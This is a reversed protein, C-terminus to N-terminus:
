LLRMKPPAAVNAARRRVTQARKKVYKKVRKKRAKERGRKNRGGPAGAIRIAKRVQWADVHVEDNLAGRRKGGIM